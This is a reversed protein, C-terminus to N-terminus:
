PFEVHFVITVTFPWSFLHAVFLLMMVFLIPVVHVVHLESQMVGIVDNVCQMQVEVSAHRVHVSIRRANKNWLDHHCM